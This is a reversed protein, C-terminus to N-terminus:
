RLKKFPYYVIGAMMWPLRYGAAVNYSVYTGFKQTKINFEYSVRPCLSITSTMNIREPDVKSNSFTETETKYVYPTPGGSIYKVTASGSRRVDAQAIINISALPEIYLGKFLKFRLGSVINIFDIKSVYHFNEAYNTYGGYGDSSGLSGSSYDYEGTSRLYNIGIVHKIYPSKGFLLNFGINYNCVYKSDSSSYKESATRQTPPERRRYNASLSNVAVGLQINFKIFDGLKLDEQKKSKATDGQWIIPKDYFFLDSDKFIEKTGNSYTIYAIDTKQVIYLPGDPNLTPKYSIETQRVELIKVETRTSDKKVIIDQCFLQVTSCLFSIAYLFRFSM